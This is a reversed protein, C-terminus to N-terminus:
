RYIRKRAAPFAVRSVLIPLMRAAIQYLTPFASKANFTTPLSIREHLLRYETRSTPTNTSKVFPISLDSWKDVLDVLLALRDVTRLHRLQVFGSRRHDHVDALGVLEAHGAIGLISLSRAPDRATRGLAAIHTRGHLRLARHLIPSRDGIWICSLTTTGRQSTWCSDSCRFQARSHRHECPQSPSCRGILGNEPLSATTCVDISDTTDASGSSSQKPRSYCDRIHARGLNCPAPTPSRRQAIAFAKNM